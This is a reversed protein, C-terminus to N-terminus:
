KKLMVIKILLKIFRITDIFPNIGSKQKQYITSIGVSEIKFNRKAAKFLIESETDYNFTKLKTEELVRRRLLRYGCQTDPIYQKTIKSIIFSMARNTLIRVFPMASVNQMRNGIIIDAKSEEAKKIFDPIFQPSHQGDADMVIIHECDTNRLIYDFGTRLSAGKGENKSHAIVTVDLGQIILGTDDTSGDNVIIIDKTFAKTREVLSSITKAENFVPILVCFKM